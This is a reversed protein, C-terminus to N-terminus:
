SSLLRSLLSPPLEELPRHRLHTETLPGIRIRRLRLVRLNLATMLRRIHRNRGEGLILRLSPPHSPPDPLIALARLTEGRDQIGQLIQRRQPPTPLRDLWVRYEKETHHSPHGLRQALAGDNTLLILGESDYDLRGITYLRLTPAAGVTKAWQTITPRGQPDHSTCLIGRPKDALYTHHPEPHIPRGDLTITDRAPDVRLGPETAPHGNVSIRGTALLAAAGRRSALGASALLTQLRTTPNPSL